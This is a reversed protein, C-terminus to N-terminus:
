LDIARLREAMSCEVHAALNAKIFSDTPLAVRALAFAVSGSHL